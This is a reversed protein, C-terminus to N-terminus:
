MLGQQQKLRAQVENCDEAAQPAGQQPRTSSSSLSAELVEVYEDDDDDDDDDENEDEDKLLQQLLSSAMRESSVTSLYVHERCQTQELSM